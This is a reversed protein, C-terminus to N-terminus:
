PVNSLLMKHSLFSLYFIRGVHATRNDHLIAPIGMGLASVQHLMFAAVYSKINSM